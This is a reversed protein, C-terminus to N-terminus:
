GQRAEEKMKREPRLDMSSLVLSVEDTTESDWEKEPNWFHGKTGEDLWLISQIREVIGVLDGKSLDRPWKM